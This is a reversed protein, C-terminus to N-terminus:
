YEEGESSKSNREEILEMKYIKRKSESKWNDLFSQAYLPLGKALDSHALAKMPLPWDGQNEKEVINIVSAAGSAFYDLTHIEITKRHTYNLRKLRKADDMTLDKRRGMFIYGMPYEIYPMLKRAYDLNEHVWSHWEELQRIAHTLAASPDGNKNFLKQKPSEIEILEWEPGYSSTDFYAFDVEFNSGLKVKSYLPSVGYLRILTNFFYSHEALFEHIHHETAPKNLLKEYKRIDKQIQDLTLKGVLPDFPIKDDPETRKM